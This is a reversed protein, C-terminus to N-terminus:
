SLELITLLEEVEDEYPAEPTLLEEMPIRASWRLNMALAYLVEQPNVTHTSDQTNGRQRAIIIADAIETENYL